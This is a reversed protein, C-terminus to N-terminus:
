HTKWIPLIIGRDVRYRVELVVSGPKELNKRVSAYNGAHAKLEIERM